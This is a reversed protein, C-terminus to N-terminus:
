QAQEQEHTGLIPVSSGGVQLKGTWQDDQKRWVQSNDGGILVVVPLHCATASPLVWFSGKWFLRLLLTFFQVQFEAIGKPCYSYAEM